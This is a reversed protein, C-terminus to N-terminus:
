YYSFSSSDLVSVLRFRDREKKEIDREVNKKTFSNVIPAKSISRSLNMLIERMVNSDIALLCVETCLQNGIAGLPRAGRLNRDRHSNFETLLSAFRAAFIESLISSNLLFFVM